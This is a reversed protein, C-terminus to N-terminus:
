PQPEAPLRGLFEALSESRSVRVRPIELPRTTGIQAWGSVETFADTYGLSGLLAVAAPGVRGSPYVFTRLPQTVGQSALRESIRQAGGGIERWLAPGWLEAVDLHDLTHNGVEMGASVLGALEASTMMSGGGRAVVSFTATFGYQQLIPLAVTANNRYGDDFTIVITRAPVPADAAMAAGLQAATITRWGGDRLAQMQAAFAAPSVYLEPFRAGPPPDAIEHYMLVPVTRTMPGTYPAPSPSASAPSASASPASSPEPVPDGSGGPDPAASSPVAGSAGAGAAGGPGSPQATPGLSGRTLALGALGICLGAVLAGALALAIQPIRRRPRNPQRTRPAPQM